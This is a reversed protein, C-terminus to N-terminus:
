NHDFTTRMCDTEVCTCRLAVKSANQNVWAAQTHHLPMAEKKDQDHELTGMTIM